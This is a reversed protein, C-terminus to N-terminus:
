LSNSSSCANRIRKLNEDIIKELLRDKTLFVSRQWTGDEQKSMLVYIPERRALFAMKIELYPDM